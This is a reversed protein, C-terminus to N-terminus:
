KKDYDDECLVRVAKLVVIRIIRNVFCINPGVQPTRSLDTRLSFTADATVKGNNAFQSIHMTHV